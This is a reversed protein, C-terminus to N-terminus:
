IVQNTISGPEAIEDARVAEYGLSEVVPRIIHRLVKDSRKRTASDEPGIPAIEFCTKNPM